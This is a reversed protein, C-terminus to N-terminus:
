RREHVLMAVPGSSPPRGSVGFQWIHGKAINRLMSSRREGQKGWPIRQGTSAQEASAHFGAGKSYKYEVFGRDRCFELWAVNIMAVVNNSAIKQGIGLAPFGHEVFELLPIEHKLVFRGVRALGADIESQDAFCLVGSGHVVHPCDFAALAQDLLKRDIAGSSEFYRIVDPAEAARLWNSTLREAQDVLAVAGRRRFIEWNPDIAVKDPFRPANRRKLADLLRDLGEAWGRVFDVPIADGLGKVNRAPELRLPIIFRADGLEKSMELALDLDDRVHPDDLTAQRCILLVKAARHQLAQGVERRWRDGPSLTLVDAFVRYGAAELKPALWLAFEDDSPSSKILFLTDREAAEGVAEARPLLRALVDPVPASKAIGKQVASTVIAELVGASQTWLKPHAREIDPYKRLLANLDELGVIDGSTLLAPGILEGLVAKKKNTLSVSTALVYRKPQLRDVSEREKSMKSKLKSFGSRQYHKAQLIIAGDALAHRGDIGDDPGEPFAEFRLGIERGILDRALDEFESFSLGTFDYAMLECFAFKDVQRDLLELSPALCMDRVLVLLKKQSVRWGVPM